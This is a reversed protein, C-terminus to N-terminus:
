WVICCCLIVCCSDQCLGGISYYLSIYSAVFASGIICSCM